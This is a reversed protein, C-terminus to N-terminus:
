DKKKRIWEGANRLFSAFSGAGDAAAREDGHWLRGIRFSRWSRMLMARTMGPNRDKAMRYELEAKPDFAILAEATFDNPLDPYDPSPRVGRRLEEQAEKIDM